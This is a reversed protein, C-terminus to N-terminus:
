IKKECAARLQLLTTEKGVATRKTCRLRMEDWRGCSAEGAAGDGDGGAERAGKRGRPLAESM